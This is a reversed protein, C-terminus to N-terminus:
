LVLAAFTIDRSLESALSKTFALVLRCNQVNIIYQRQERAEEFSRAGYIEIKFNPVADGTLRCNWIGARLVPGAGLKLNRGCCWGSIEFVLGM